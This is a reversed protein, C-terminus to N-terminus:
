KLRGSAALQKAYEELSYTPDAAQVHKYFSRQEMNLKSVLDNGMGASSTTSTGVLAPKAKNPNEFKTPFQKKIDRELLSIADKDSFTGDLSQMKEYVPIKEMMFAQMERDEISKGQLWSKNREQFATIDESQPKAVPPEPLLTSNVQQQEQEVQLVGDVDGQQIKEMKRVSLERQLKENAAKEVMRTHEVLQKVTKTLEDVEKSKLMAEKSARRKAEIIEGVRKYEVASVADPGTRDPDWGKEMQEVELETYQRESSDTDSTAVAPEDKVEDIKGQEFQEIEKLAAEAQAKIEDPTLPM